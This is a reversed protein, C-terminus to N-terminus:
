IDIINQFNINGVGKIKTYEIDDQLSKYFQVDGHFGHIFTAVNNNQRLCQYAEKSYKKIEDTLFIGVQGSDASIHGIQKGKDNCILCEWDGCLTSDALFNEFGLIPLNHGYSCKTWDDHTIVYIPDTIVIDGDFRM